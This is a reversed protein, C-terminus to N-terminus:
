FAGDGNYIGRKQLTVRYNDPLDITEWFDISPVDHGRSILATRYAEARVQNMHAKTHGICDTTALANAMWAFLEEDTAGEIKKDLYDMM